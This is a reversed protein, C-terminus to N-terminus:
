EYNNTFASLDTVDAYMDIYQVDVTGSSGESTLVLGISDGKNFSIIGSEYEAYVANSSTVSISSVTSGNKQINIKGAYRIATVRVKLKFSGAWNMLLWDSVTLPASYTGSIPSSIVRAYFNDSAKLGKSGLIIEDLPQFDETGLTSNIAKKIKPWGM